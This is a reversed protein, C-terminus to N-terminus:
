FESLNSVYANNAQLSARLTESAKGADECEITVTANKILYVDPQTAALDGLSGAASPDGASQDAPSPAPEAAVKAREVGQQNHQSAWSAPAPAGATREAEFVDAHEMRGGCGAILVAILAPLSFARLFVM